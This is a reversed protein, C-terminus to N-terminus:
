WGSLIVMLDGNFWWKGMKTSEKSNLMELRLSMQFMELAPCDGRFGGGALQAHTPMAAIVEHSQVFITPHSPASKKLSVHFGWYAPYSPWKKALSSITNKENKPSGM